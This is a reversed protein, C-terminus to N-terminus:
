SPYDAPAPPLDGPSARSAAQRRRAALEAELGEVMVALAADASYASGRPRWLQVVVGLTLVLAGTMLAFM